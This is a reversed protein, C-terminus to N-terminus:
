SAKEDEEQLEILGTEEVVVNEGKVVWQIRKDTPKSSGEVKKRIGAERRLTATEYRRWLKRKM